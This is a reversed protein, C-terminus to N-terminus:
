QRDIIRVSSNLEVFYSVAVAYLLFFGSFQTLLGAHYTIRPPVSAILLSEAHGGSVRLSAGYDVLVFGTFFLFVAVFVTAAKRQESRM